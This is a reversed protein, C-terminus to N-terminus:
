GPPPIMGGFHQAIAELSTAISAYKDVLMDVSIAVANMGKLIPGVKMIVILMLIFPIMISTMTAVFQMLAAHKEWFTYIKADQGIKHAASKIDKLKFKANFEVLSLKQKIPNGDDDNKIQGDEDLEYIQVIQTPRMPYYNDEVKILDFTAKGGATVTADKMTVPVRVKARKLKFMVTKDTDEKQQVTDTLKRCTDGVYEWITTKYSKGRDKLKMYILFAIASFFLIILVYVIWDMSGTGINSIWDLGKIPTAM